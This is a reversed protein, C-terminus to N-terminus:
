NVLLRWDNCHQVCMVPCPQAHSLWACNVHITNILRLLTFLSQLKSTFYVGLRVTLKQFRREFVGDAVETCINDIPKQDGGFDLGMAGAPDWDKPPMWKAGDVYGSCNLSGSATLWTRVCM